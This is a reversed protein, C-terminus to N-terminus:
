DAEKQDDMGGTSNVAGTWAFLARTGSQKSTIGVFLLLETLAPTILLNEVEAVAYFDEAEKLAEIMSMVFGDLQEPAVPASSVTKKDNM